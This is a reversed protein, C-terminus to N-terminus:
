YGNELEHQNHNNKHSLNLRNSFLFCFLVFAAVFFLCVFRFVFFLNPNSLIQAFVHRCSFQSSMFPITVRGETEVDAFEKALSILIYLVNATGM